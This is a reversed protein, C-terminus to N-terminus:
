DSSPVEVGVAKLAALCIARPATDCWKSATEDYVSVHKRAQWRKTLEDYLVSLGLKEVVRWGAAIDTSYFPLGIHVFLRM